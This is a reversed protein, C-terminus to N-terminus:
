VTPIDRPQSDAMSQPNPYRTPLQHSKATSKFIGVTNIEDLLCGRHQSVRATRLYDFPRMKPAVNPLEQQESITSFDRRQISTSFSKSNQSPRFTRMKPTISLLEQQESITSPSRKWNSSFGFDIYSELFFAGIISMQFGWGHYVDPRGLWSLCRSAGVMISMQVGWGQYIYRIGWGQYIYQAGWGQYIYEWVLIGFIL